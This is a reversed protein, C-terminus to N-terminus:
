IDFHTKIIRMRIGIDLTRYHIKTIRNTKNYFYVYNYAEIEYWWCDYSCGYSRGLYGIIIDESGKLKM